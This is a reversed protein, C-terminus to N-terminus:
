PKIIKIKQGVKVGSDSLNNWSQIQEISVGYIQSIRFMTEGKEVTHYTVASETASSSKVTSSPAVTRGGSTPKVALKQGVELKNDATLSNISLLEDVSLGYLKSISYYTQGPEVVHTTASRNVVSPATARAPTSSSVDKSEVSTTTVAAAPRTETRTVVPPAPRPPAKTTSVPSPITLSGDAQQERPGEYKDTEPRGMDADATTVPKTRPTSAYTDKARTAPAASAGATRDRVPTTAVPVTKTPEPGEPTRVIIVRQSGENSDQRSTPVPREAPTAASTAPQISPRQPESRQPAAPESTGDNPTVGGGVLKPQYLKREAANRPVGDSGSVPQVSGGPTTVTVQQRAPPTPTRDYVPPTPSNIVEIPKNSPRRERLWMVRGTVLKQVRDLRNYRM